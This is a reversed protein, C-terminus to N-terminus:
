AVEVSIIRRGIQYNGTEALVQGALQEPVDVLTRNDLISIRGLTKGPIGSYYAIARVVDNVRVGDTKGTDLQLRVMGKEHSSGPRGNSRERSGSFRPERYSRQRGGKVPQRRRVERVEEIPPIPRQKEEARALKLAVAAIEVPDHGNAMLDSVIERERSCRGRRLWMNVQDLLQKERGEQIEDVTPLTAPRIQQRAYNEIRQLRWREQPALLTIATGTKGARGTRGIRHVYVEPDLPLDYNFVHSID